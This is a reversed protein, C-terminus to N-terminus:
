AEAVTKPAKDKKPERFVVYKWWLFEGVFNVLLNGFKVLMPHLGKAVLEGTWWTSAPLFVVYFLAVKLMAIPINNTSKFTFKRNITFNWVVSLFLSIAQAWTAVAKKTAAAEAGMGDVWWQQPMNFTNVFFDMQPLYIFLTYTLVEVAAATCSFLTFLIAQKLAKRRESEPEKPPKVEGPVASNPDVAGAENVDTM